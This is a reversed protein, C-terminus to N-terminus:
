VSFLWGIRRFYLLLALASALSVLVLVIFTTYPGLFDWPGTEIGGPLNVNMGYFTGIITGPISLTFAITLVTIIRALRNALGTQVVNIGAALIELTHEAMQIQRDLSALIIDFKALVKEKDSVMEPDGSKIAHVTEHTAWMANLFTMIARKISSLELSLDRPFQRAETLRIQLEEAREVLDRLVVFNHETIEDLLRWLLLTNRDAWAEEGKPLRKLFIEIYESFRQLRNSPEHIVFVHGRKVLIVVPSPIVTGGRFTLIPVMLALLEGLDEYNSLYGGLLTTPDYTIGLQKIVDRISRSVDEVVVDIWATKCEALRQSIEQLTIEKNKFTTGQSTLGALILPQPM